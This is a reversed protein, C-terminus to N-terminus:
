RLNSTCFFLNPPAPTRVQSESPGFPNETAAVSSRPHDELLTRTESAVSNCSGTLCNESLAFPERDSCDLLASEKEARKRAATRKRAESLKRSIEARQEPTKSAERLLAKERMKEKSEESAGVEAHWRSMAQARKQQAEPSRSAVRCPHDPRRMAARRKERSEPSNFASDPDAWLRRSRESQKASMEPTMEHGCKERLIQITEPSHKKGYFNNKEGRKSESMRARTEATIIPREAEKLNFGKPSLTDHLKMLRDEEQLLESEECEVLIEWSFTEEGWKNWSNQLAPNGHKGRALATWHNRRRQEFSNKTSGIYKKGNGSCTILYVGPM